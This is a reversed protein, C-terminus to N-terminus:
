CQSLTHHVFNRLLGMLADPSEEHSLHGCEPLVAVDCTHLEAALAHARAPTVIRDKAGTVVLAPLGNCDSCFQRVADNSLNRKLRSMELLALDWGQVKLPQKYLHLVEPTLKTVDFWARRNAVEGVESRLLPRLIRRGLRSRGLLRTFSPGVEGAMSPHLLVLGVVEVDCKAGCVVGEDGESLGQMQALPPRMSHVSQRVMDSNLAPGGEDLLSGALHNSNTRRHRHHSSQQNGHQSGHSSHTHTPSSNSTTNSRLLRRGTNRQLLPASFDGATSGASEDESTSPSSWLPRGPHQSPFSVPVSDHPVQSQSQQELVIPMPGTTQQPGQQQAALLAEAPSRQVPSSAHVDIVVHPPEDKSARSAAAAAMLALLAGDSHGALVVQKVGCASCLHLVLDAQAALSYRSTSGSRQAPRSTLGFAPRDFAIVRCGASDALPQMINRWAFAGGGFGHVLLIATEDSCTAKTPYAQKYHVSLGNCQIFLSDKDALQSAPVDTDGGESEYQSDTQQQRMQRWTMEGGQWPHSQGLLGLKYRNRAWGVVKRAVLIHLLSFGLFDLFLFVAPPHYSPRDFISAKVLLFPVTVAASTIATYLYPQKCSRASGCLYSVIIAAARLMSLLVVDELSHGLAYHFQHPGCRFPLACPVLLTYTILASSAELLALGWPAVAKLLSLLCFIFFHLFSFYRAFVESLKAGHGSRSQAGLGLKGKLVNDAKYQIYRRKQKRGEKGDAM